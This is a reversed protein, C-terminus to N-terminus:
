CATLGGRGACTTGVGCFKAASGTCSSQTSIRCQFGRGSFFGCAGTLNATSTGGSSGSGTNCQAGATFIGSRKDCDARTWDACLSATGRGSGELYVCKGLASPDAKSTSGGTDCKGAADLSKCVSGAGCTTSRDTGPKPSTCCPRLGSGDSSPFAKGNLPPGSCQKIEAPQCFGKGGESVCTVFTGLEPLLPSELSVYSPRIVQLITYAGLLLIVGIISQTIFDKATSVRTQNGSSTVWIVGGIMIMVTAVLISAGISFFYFNRIYTRFDVIKVDGDQGVLEGPFLGRASIKPASDSAADDSPPTAPGALAVNAAFFLGIFLLLALIITKSKRQKKKM